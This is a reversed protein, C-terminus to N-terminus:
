VATVSVPSVWTAPSVVSDTRFIQISLWTNIHRDTSLNTDCGHLSSAWLKVPNHYLHFHLGLQLSQDLGNVSLALTALYHRISQQTSTYYHIPGLLRLTSMFQVMFINVHSAVATLALHDRTKWMHKLFLDFYKPPAFFHTAVAIKLLYVCIFTEIFLIIVLVSKKKVDLDM